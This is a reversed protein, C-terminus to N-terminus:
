RRTTRWSSHQSAVRGRRALMVRPRSAPVSERHHIGLQELPAHPEEDHLVEELVSSRWDHLLNHVLEGEGAVAGRADKMVQLSGAVDCQDLSGVADQHGERERGDGSRKSRRDAAAGVEGVARPVRDGEMGHEAVVDPDLREALM